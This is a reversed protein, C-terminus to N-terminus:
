GGGVGVGAVSHSWRRPSEGYIRKFERSFQSSSVYGVQSAAENVNMGAAIKMAASNLRMAKVFQIPSMTTAKKFTRHFVARSM